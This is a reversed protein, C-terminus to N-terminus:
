NRGSSWYAQFLAYELYLLIVGIILGIMVSWLPRQSWPEAPAPSQNLTAQGIVMTVSRDDPALGRAARYQERWEEHEMEERFRNIQARRKRASWHLFGGVLSVVTVGWVAYMVDWYPTAPSLPMPQWPPIARWLLSFIAWDDLLPDIHGRLKGGWDPFLGGAPTLYYLHKVATLLLLIM